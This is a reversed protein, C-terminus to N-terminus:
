RQDGGFRCDLDQRLDPARLAAGRDRSGDWRAVLNGATAPRM